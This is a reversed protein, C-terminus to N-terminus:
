QVYLSDAFSSQSTYFPPGSAPSLLRGCITIPSPRVHTSHPKAAWSWIVTVRHREQPLHTHLRTCMGTGLGYAQIQFPCKRDQSCFQLGFQVKRETAKQVQFAAINSILAM